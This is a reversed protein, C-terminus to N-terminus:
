AGMGLFDAIRRLMGAPARGEEKASLPLLAFRFTITHPYTDDDNWGRLTVTYPEDDLDYDEPWAVPVGEGSIDGEVNVPWVQHESRWIQVHVLGVCGRPFQIEVRVVTGPALPADMTAPASEATNAPITLAYEHFM